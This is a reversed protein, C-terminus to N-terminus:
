HKTTQTASQGQAVDRVEGVVDSLIELLFPAVIPSTKLLSMLLIGLTMAIGSPTEEGIASAARQAAAECTQARELLIKKTNIQTTM